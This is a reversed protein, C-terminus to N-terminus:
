NNYILKKQFDSHNEFNYFSSDIKYFNISSTRENNNLYTPTLNSNLQLKQTYDTTGTYVYMAFASLFAAFSIFLKKM